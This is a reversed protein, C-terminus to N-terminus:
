LEQGYCRRQRRKAASRFRKSFRRGLFKADGLLAHIRYDWYDIKFALRSKRAEIDRALEDREITLREREMTLRELDMTLRELDMRLRERDVNASEFDLLASNFAAALSSLDESESSIEVKNQNKSNNYTIIIEEDPPLIQNFYEIPTRFKEQFQAVLGASLWAEQPRVNPSIEVLRDSVFTGVRGGFNKNVTRVLRLEIASLSRNVIRQEADAYGQTLLTNTCNLEELFRSITSKKTKSYNVVRVPVGLDSLNQHWLQAELLHDEDLAFEELERTEEHRKVRQHYVAAAMELPNRIFMIVEFDFGGIMCEIEQIIEIRQYFMHEGSFLIRARNEATEAEKRIEEFIKCAEDPCNGSTIGGRQAKEFSAHKPYIVGDQELQHVNSALFSQIASTGTKGHGIHLIVSKKM